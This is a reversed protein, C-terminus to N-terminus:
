SGNEPEPQLLTIAMNGWTRRDIVKLSAYTDHLVSHDSTRVSVIANESVQQAILILLKGLQSGQETDFAMKYPPDVFVLDYKNNDLDMPAGSKFASAKLIKAQENFGARDINKQCVATVQRSIDVFVCSSAGRSLAELGTSGTGCFLDAVRAGPIIDYKYLISFLSEKVRDTIPRTDNTKPPLLKLGRKTGSIIRM